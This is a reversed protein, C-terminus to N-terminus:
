KFKSKIKQMQEFLNIGHIDNEWLGLPVEDREQRLYFDFCKVFNYLNDVGEIKESGLERLLLYDSSVKSLLEQWTSLSDYNDIIWIRDFKNDRIEELRNRDM